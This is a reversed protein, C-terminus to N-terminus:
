RAPSGPTVCGPLPRASSRALAAHRAPTAVVCARTCSRAPPRWPRSCRITAVCAPTASARARSPPGTPRVCRRTSISPTTPPWTPAWGPPGRVPWCSGRCPTSCGCRSGSSGACGRGSRRRPGTHRHVSTTRRRRAARRLRRDLRRRDADGRGGDAGQDRRQRPRGRRRAAQGAPRDARRHGTEPGARRAGAARRQARRQRRRLHHQGARPQAIIADVPHGGSSSEATKSCGCQGLESPM